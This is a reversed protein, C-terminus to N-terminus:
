ESNDTKAIPPASEGIKGRTIRDLPFETAPSHRDDVQGAVTLEVTVDRDLDHLRRPRFVAAGHRPQGVFRSDYRLEM